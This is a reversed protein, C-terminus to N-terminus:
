KPGARKELHASRGYVIRYVLENFVFVAFGFAASVGLLVGGWKFPAHRMATAPGFLGVPWVLEVLALLLLTLGLWALGKVAVYRARGRGRATEWRAIATTSPFFLWFLIQKM